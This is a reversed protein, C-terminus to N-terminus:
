RHEWSAPEKSKRRENTLNEKVRKIFYGGRSKGWKESKKKFGKM